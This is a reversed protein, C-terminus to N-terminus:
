RPRLRRVSLLSGRDGDTLRVAQPRHDSGAERWQQLRPDGIFGLDAPRLRTRDAAPRARMRRTKEYTGGRGEDRETERGERLPQRRSRNYHLTFTRRLRCATLTSVSSAM